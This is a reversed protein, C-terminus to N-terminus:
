PKRKPAPLACGPQGSPYKRASLVATCRIIEKVDSLSQRKGDGTHILFSAHQRKFSDPLQAKLIQKFATSTMGPRTMVRVRQVHFPATVVAIVDCRRWGGKEFLLPIDLVVIAEQRLAQTQLWKKQAQWVLPHMIEELRKLAAPNAFVADRLKTRDLGAVSVTGPFQRAILPLAAGDKAQLSRVAADADFVPVRLRRFMAAATSKGMGISGTLGLIIM